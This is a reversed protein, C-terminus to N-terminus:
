QNDTGLDASPHNPNHVKTGSGEIKPDSTWIWDGNDDYVFKNNIGYGKRQRGNYTNTFTVSANIGIVPEKSTEEGEPTEEGESTEGEEPAEGEELPRSIITKVANDKDLIVIGNKIKEGEVTAHQEASGVISYSAGYYIEEVTVETGVPIRSIIREESRGSNVDFTISDVKSDTKESDFPNQWSARFVFTVKEDKEEPWEVVTDGKGVEVTEESEYIELNKTIKLAGYRLTRLPKLYVNLNYVWDGDESSMAGDDDAIGPIPGADPVPTTNVVTDRRMPISVLEPQFIYTYKPSNAITAIKGNVSQDTADKACQMTVMYDEPTLPEDDSTNKNRAIILYLGPDMNAEGLKNVTGGAITIGTGDKESKKAGDGEPGLVIKAAEQAKEEWVSAKLEEEGVEKLAENIGEFDLEEYGLMSEYFYTDYGPKRVADAVKYVDVVINAENLDEGFPEQGEPKKQEPFIKMSCPKNENIAAGSIMPEAACVGVILTLATLLCIWKKKM